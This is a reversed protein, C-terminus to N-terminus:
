SRWDVCVAIPLSHLNNDICLWKIWTKRLRTSLGRHLMLISFFLRVFLRFRFLFSLLARKKNENRKGNANANGNVRNLELEKNFKVRACMILQFVFASSFFIIHFATFHLRLAFIIMKSIRWQLKTQECKRKQTHESRFCFKWVSNLSCSCCFDWRCHHLSFFFLISLSNKLRSLKCGSFYFTKLMWILWAAWRKHHLNDDWFANRQRKVKKWTM